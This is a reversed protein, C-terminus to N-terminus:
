VDLVILLSPQQNIHMLLTVLLDGDTGNKHLKKFNCDTHHTCKQIKHHKQIRVKISTLPRESQQCPIGKALYRQLCSLQPDSYLMNSTQLLFFPTSKTFVCQYINMCKFHTKLPVSDNNMHLHWPWHLCHEVCVWPWCLAIQIPVSHERRNWDLVFDDSQKDTM